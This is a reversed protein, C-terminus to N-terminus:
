ECERRIKRLKSDMEAMAQSADRLDRDLQAIFRDEFKGAVDDKWKRGLEEWRALLAKRADNLQASGMALSM